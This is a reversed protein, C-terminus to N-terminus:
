ISYIIIQNEMIDWGFEGSLGDDSIFTNYLLVPTPEAGEGSGQNERYQM